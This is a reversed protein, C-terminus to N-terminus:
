VYEATVTDYRKGLCLLVYKTSASLYTAEVDGTIRYYWKGDAHKRRTSAMDADSISQLDARLTVLTRCNDDPHVPALTTIENCVVDMTLAKPRGKECAFDEWFDLRKPKREAVPDSRKIFWEM